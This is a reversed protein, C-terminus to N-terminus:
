LIKTDFAVCLKALMRIICPHPPPPNFKTLVSIINVNIFNRVKLLKYEVQKFTEKWTIEVFPRWSRRWIKGRPSRQASTSLLQRLGSWILVYCLSLEQYPFFSQFYKTTATASGPPPPRPRGGGGPIRWTLGGCCSTQPASSHVAAGTHGCPCVSKFFHHRCVPMFMWSSHQQTSRQICAHNRWTSCRKKKIKRIKGTVEFIKYFNCIYTCIVKCIRERIKRFNYGLITFFAYRRMAIKLIERPLMGGSGVLPPLPLGEGHDRLSWLNPTKSNWAGGGRSEFGPDAVSYYPLLPIRPWKKYVAGSRVDYHSSKGLAENTM